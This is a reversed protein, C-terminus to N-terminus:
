SRSAFKDPHLLTQLRRFKVTLNNVDIDFHPTEKFVEFHNLKQRPELVCGCSMCVLDREIVVANCKWCRNKSVNLLRVAHTSWFHVASSTLELFKRNCSRYGFPTFCSDNVVVVFCRKMIKFLRNESPMKWLHHVKLVAFKNGWKNLITNM